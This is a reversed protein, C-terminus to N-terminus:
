FLQALIRCQEACTRCAIACHKCHAHMEAHKECEDACASCAAECVLALSRLLPFDAETQRGLVPASMRCIDACNLDTVICRRLDAVMDEALCADACADCTAACLNLTGAIEGIREWDISKPDPHSQLTKTLQHM